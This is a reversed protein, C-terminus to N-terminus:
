KKGIMYSCLLFVRNKVPYFIESEFINKKENFFSKFEM